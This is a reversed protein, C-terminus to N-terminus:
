AAGAVCIRVVRRTRVKRLYPAAMARVGERLADPCFGIALCAEEFSAVSAERFLYGECHALEASVQELKIGSPVADTVGAKFKLLGLYDDVTMKILAVHLLKECTPHPAYEQPPPTVEWIRMRQERGNATPTFDHPRKAARHKQVHGPMAHTAIATM